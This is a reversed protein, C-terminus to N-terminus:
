QFGKGMKFVPNQTKKNDLQAVHNPLYVKVPVLALTLTLCTHLTTCTCPRIKDKNLVNTNQEDHYEPM